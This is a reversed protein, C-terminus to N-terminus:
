RQLPVGLQDLAIDRCGDGLELAFGALVDFHVAAGRKQLSQDFVIQDVFVPDPDVGDYEATSLAQESLVSSACLQPEDVRPSDIRADHDEGVLRGASPRLVTMGCYM